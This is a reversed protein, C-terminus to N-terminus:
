TPSIANGVLARGFEEFANKRFVVQVSPSVRQGESAGRRSRSWDRAFLPGSALPNFKGEGRGTAVLGGRLTAMAQGQLYSSPHKAM